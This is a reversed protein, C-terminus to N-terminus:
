QTRMQQGQGPVISDRIRQASVEDPALPGQGGQPSAFVAASFSGERRWHRIFRPSRKGTRPSLKPPCMTIRWLSPALPKHTPAAAQGRGATFPDPFLFRYPSNTCPWSNAAGIQEEGLPPLIDTFSVPSPSFRFCFFPVGEDRSLIRRSRSRRREPHCGKRNRAAPMGSGGGGRPLVSPTRCGPLPFLM